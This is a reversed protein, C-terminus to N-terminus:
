SEAVLEVLRRIDQDSVGSHTPLTILERVILEAGPFSADRNALLPHLGPLGSLTGPYGPAAGLRAASTPRLASWGGRVRLPFRLAGSNSDLRAGILRHDPDHSRNLDRSYRRANNRRYSVEAGADADSALLLAASTRTMLDPTTPQHYVTEGLALFPISSPIWYLGPRALLWQAGAVAATMAEARIDYSAAGAIRDLDLPASDRVMLAGGAAGTWGKGRGFSLVTMDGFSGVPRDRWITGHAQAADEILLAGLDRAVSRATDWNLPLGYLPAVVLAAAGQAAASRVSEWDPELTAPDLDYLAVPTGAGAAATAVEYCTYAPLLVPAGGRFQRASSLALSLAHTGSSCLVSGQAHFRQLLLSRLRDRPDPGIALVQLGLRPLM